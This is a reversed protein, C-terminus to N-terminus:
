SGRDMELVSADGLYYFRWSSWPWQDPSSVLGRKVPHNHMYDLKELRKRESYVNFPYFRRQWVRYHSEDHVSPPLRFRALMKRCCSNEPQKRLAALIRRATQDKLRQLILSTTDAPEPKILLHFHDPMFVWGVLLFQMELRLQTLAEVFDRRFRDSSFIPTRRYTRTTIFQLQGPHFYRRYFPM